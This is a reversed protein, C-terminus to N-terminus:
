NTFPKSNVEDFDQETKAAKHAAKNAVHQVNEEAHDDHTESQNDPIGSTFRDPVESNSKDTTSM